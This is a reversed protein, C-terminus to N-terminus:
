GVDISFDVHRAAPKHRDSPLVYNFGLAAGGRGIPRFRWIEKGAAGPVSAKPAVYRHSVQHLGANMQSASAFEWRYGTSRNSALTLVIAEHPKVTFEKHNDKPTLHLTSGHSQAHSQGCGALFLAAVAVSSWRAGRM